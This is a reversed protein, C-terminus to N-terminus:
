SRPTQGGKRYRAPSQQFHNRFVKTFYQVNQFGLQDAIVKIPIDTGM